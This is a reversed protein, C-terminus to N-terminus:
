PYPCFRFVACEDESSLLVCSALDFEGDSPPATRCAMRSPSIYSATDLPRLFYGPDQQPYRLVRMAQWIQGMEAVSGLSSTYVPIEM